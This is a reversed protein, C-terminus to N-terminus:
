GIRYGILFGFVASIVIVINEKIISFINKFLDGITETPSIGTFDKIKAWDIVVLKFNEMLFLFGILFIISLIFIKGFKKFLFGIFFGAAFYSAVEILNNTSFEFKKTLNNFSQKIGDVTPANVIEKHDV